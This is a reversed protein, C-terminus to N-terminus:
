SIAVTNPAGISTQLRFETVPHERLWHKTEQNMQQHMVAQLNKVVEFLM